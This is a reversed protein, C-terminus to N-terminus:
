FCGRSFSKELASLANKERVRNRGIRNIGRSFIEPPFYILEGFNRRFHSPMKFIQLHSKTVSLAVRRLGAPLCHRSNKRWTTSFNRSARPSNRHPTIRRPRRCRTKDSTAHRAPPLSSSPFSSIPISSASRTVGSQVHGIKRAGCVARAANNRPGSSDTRHGYVVEARARPTM